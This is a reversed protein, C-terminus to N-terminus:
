RLGLRESPDVWVLKDNDQYVGVRFQLIDQPILSGGGLHGIVTGQEITDGVNVVPAQLNQYASFMDQTHQITVVYGSNATLLRADTVKGPLVSRVSSNMQQARIGIMNGIEGYPNVLLPNDFPTGFELSAAEPLAELFARKREEAARAREQAERAIRAKEEEQVRLAERQAAEAARRADDAERTLRSVESTLNQRSNAIATEISQQEEIFARRQALQGERTAELENIRLELQIEAAQLDLENQQLKALVAKQANSQDNLNQQLRETDVMASDIDQLLTVDQASLMSLFRNSLRFRFLSQSEIIIRAYPGVRQKHLSVLMLKLRENMSGLDERLVLYKARSEVIDQEIRVLDNETLRREERLSSILESTENRERIIQKLKRDSNGLIEDIQNLELQTALLVAEYAEIEQELKQTTSNSQAVVTSFLGLIGLILCSLLLSSVLRASRTKYMKLNTYVTLGM